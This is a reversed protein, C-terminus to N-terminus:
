VRLIPFFILQKDNKIRRGDELIQREELWVRMWKDYLLRQQM